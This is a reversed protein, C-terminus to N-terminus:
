LHLHETCFYDSWGCALRLWIEPPSSCLSVSLWVLPAATCPCSYPKTFGHCSLWCDRVMVVVTPPSTCVRRPQPAAPHPCPHASHCVLPAPPWPLLSPAPAAAPHPQTQDVIIAPSIHHLSCSGVHQQDWKTEASGQNGNGSSSRSSFKGRVRLPHSRGM